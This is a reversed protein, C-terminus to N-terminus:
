FKHSTTLNQLLQAKDLKVQEAKTSQSKCSEQKQVQKISCSSKTVQAQSMKEGAGSVVMDGTCRSVDDRGANRGCGGESFSNSHKMGKDTERKKPQLFLTTRLFNQLKSM